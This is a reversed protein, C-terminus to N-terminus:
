IRDTLLWSCFSPPPLAGVFGSFGMKGKLDGLLTEATECSWTGPEDETRFTDNSRTNIRNYSCMMSAVGASVAAQYAPYYIEWRTREDATTTVLNRAKEQNNLLFDSACAMIGESQLGAVENSAFRAALHPDEGPNEFNRGGGPVRALVLMPTLALNCGKGHFEAGMAAGFARMLDEDWTAAVTLASPFATHGGSDAVRM